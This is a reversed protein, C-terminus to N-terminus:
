LPHPFESSLPGEVEIIEEEEDEEEDDEEEEEGETYEDREEIVEGGEGTDTDGEGILMLGEFIRSNLEVDDYKGGLIGLSSYSLQKFAADRGFQDKQSFLAEAHGYIKKLIGEGGKLHREKSVMGDGTFSQQTNLYEVCEELVKAQNQGTFPNDWRNLDALHLVITELRPLNWSFKKAAM